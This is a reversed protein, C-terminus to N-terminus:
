RFTLREQELEEDFKRWFDREEETVPRRRLARLEAALLKRREMQESSVSENMDQEMRGLQSKVHGSM